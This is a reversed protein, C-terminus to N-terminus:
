YTTFFNPAQQALIVWAAASASPWVHYEVGFTTNTITQDAQLPGVSPGAVAQWATIWSNLTTTSQGLV